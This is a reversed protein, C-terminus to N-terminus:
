SRWTTSKSTKPISRPIACGVVLSPRRDQRLEDPDVLRGDVDADPRAALLRSGSAACLALEFAAMARRVERRREPVLRRGLRPVRVTRGQVAVAHQRGRRPRQPYLSGRASEGGRFRPAHLQRHLRRDLGLARVGAAHPRRLSVRTARGACGATRALEGLGGPRGRRRDGRRHLRALDEVALTRDAQGGRHDLQSGSVRRLRGRGTRDTARRHPALLLLESPRHQVAARRRSLVAAEGPFRTEFGTLNVEAPDAEVQGFDPNIATELTLNPGLGMKVDAGLRGKLNTGDDFPNGRDRDGSITSGGAVYPLAEIRRPPVIGHLAPSM